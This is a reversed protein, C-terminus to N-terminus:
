IFASRAFSETGVVKISYIEIIKVTVLITSCSSVLKITQTLSISLPQTTINALLM